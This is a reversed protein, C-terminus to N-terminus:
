EAGGGGQRAADIAAYLETGDPGWAWCGEAHTSARSEYRDTM